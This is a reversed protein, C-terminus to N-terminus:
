SFNIRCCVCVCMGINVIKYYIWIENYAFMNLKIVTAKWDFNRIECICINHQIYYIYLINYM